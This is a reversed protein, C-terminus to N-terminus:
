KGPFVVVHLVQFHVHSLVGQRSSVKETINQKCTKIFKFYIPFSYNDLKHLPQLNIEARNFEKM